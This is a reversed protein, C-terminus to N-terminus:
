YKGAVECPLPENNETALVRQHNEYDLLYKKYINKLRFSASTETKSYNELSRFIKAWTGKESMVQANGGRAQVEVYLRYLNLERGGLTLSRFRVVKGTSKYFNRLKELFAMTDHDKSLTTTAESCSSPLSGEEPADCTNHQPDEENMHCFWKSPLKEMASSDLKLRRWKLCLNCQVWNISTSNGSQESVLGSDPSQDVLRNAAKSSKGGSKSSIPLAIKRHIASMLGNRWWRIFNESNNWRDMADKRPVKSGTSFCMSCVPGQDGRNLDGCVGCFWESAHISAAVSSSPIQAVISQISFSGVPPGGRGGGQGSGGHSNGAGHKARKKREKKKPAAKAAPGPRKGATEARVSEAPSKAVSDAAPKEKVIKELTSVEPKAPALSTGQKPTEAPPAPAKAPQPKGPAPDGKKPSAKASAAAKAPSKKQKPPPEEEDEDDYGYCRSSGMHMRLVRRPKRKRKGRLVLGIDGGTVSSSGPSKGGGSSSPM